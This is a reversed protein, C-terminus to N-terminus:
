CVWLRREVEGVKSRVARIMRMACFIVCRWMSDAILPPQRVWNSARIQSRMPGASEQGARRVSLDM